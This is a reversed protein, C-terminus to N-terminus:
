PSSIRHVADDIDDRTAGRGSLACEDCEAAATLLALGDGAIAPTEAVITIEADVTLGEIAGVALPRVAARERICRLARLRTEAGIPVVRAEGHLAICIFCIDILGDATRAIEGTGIQQPAPALFAVIAGRPSYLRIDIVGLTILRPDEVLREIDKIQFELASQPGRARVPQQPAATIAIGIVIEVILVDGREGEDGFILMEMPVVHEHLVLPGQAGIEGEREADLALVVVVGSYLPQGFRTDGPGEGLILDQPALHRVDELHPVAQLWEGRERKGDGGEMMM